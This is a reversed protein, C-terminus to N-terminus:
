NSSDPPRVLDNSSACRVINRIAWIFLPVILIGASIAIPWSDNSVSKAPIIALISLVFAGLTLANVFFYINAGPRKRKMRELLWIEPIVLLASISIIFILQLESTEALV